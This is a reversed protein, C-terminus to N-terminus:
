HIDLLLPENWSAHILEDQVSRSFTTNDFHIDTSWQEPVLLRNTTIPNWFPKHSQVGLIRFVLCLYISRYITRWCSELGIPLDLRGLYSTWPRWPIVSLLDNTKEFAVYWKLPDGWSVFVRRLIPPLSRLQLISVPQLVTTGRDFTSPDSPTNMQFRPTSHVLVELKSTIISMRM